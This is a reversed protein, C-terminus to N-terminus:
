VKDISLVNVPIGDHSLSWFNLLLFVSPVNPDKFTQGFQARPNLYSM